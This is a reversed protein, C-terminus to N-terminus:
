NSRRGTRKPKGDDDFAVKVPPGRKEIKRAPQELQLEQVLLALRRPTAFSKTAGHNLGAKDIGQVCAEAFAAELRLLAKPPLEETGIEVLFDATAATVM